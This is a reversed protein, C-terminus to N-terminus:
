DRARGDDVTPATPPASRSVFIDGLKALSERFTKVAEKDAKVKNGEAHVGKGEEEVCHRVNELLIVSGPAPDAHAAEVEAGVRDTQFTVPKGLLEELAKAVPAM